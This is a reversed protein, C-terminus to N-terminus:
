NAPVVVKVKVTMVGPVALVADEVRKVLQEVQHEPDREMLEVDVNGDLADSTSVVGLTVIDKGVGPVTVTGLADLIERKMTSFGVYEEELPVYTEKTGRDGTWDIIGKPKYFLKESSHVVGDATQFTDEQEGAIGKTWIDRTMWFFKLAQIKPICFFQVDVWHNLVQLPKLIGLWRQSLIPKAFRLLFPFLNFLIAAWQINAIKDFEGYVDRAKYTFEGVGESLGNAAAFKAIETGKYMKLIATRMGLSKLSIGFRLSEIAGDLSEGPLCYIMNMLFKFGHKHMLNTAEVYRANTIKKNLINIRTEEVGCELGFTGGRCGGKVLTEIVEEDISTLEVNCTFPRDFNKPYEACFEKIWAKNLNFIDDSFHILRVPYKAMISRLEAIVYEVSHRRVVKGNGKYMKFFSPEYCYSCKYPCGRSTILRKLAFKALFPYKDYYLARDPFPYKDLDDSLPGRANRVWGNETKVNLTPVKTYDEGNDICNMLELLAEEGEGTCVIDVCGYKMVDEAMFMCHPGGWIITRGTQEKIIRSIARFQEAQPTMASFAVLDPDCDEVFKILDQFRKYDQLLTLEVQHGATKVYSSLYMIGLGENTFNDSVFLIKAM